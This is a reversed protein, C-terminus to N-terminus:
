LMLCVALRVVLVEKACCTTLQQKQECKHMYLKCSDQSQNQSIRALESQNKVRDPSEGDLVTHSLEAPQRPIDEPVLCAQALDTTPTAAPSNPPQARDQPAAGELAHMVHGGSINPAARPLDAPSHLPRPEHDQEMDLKPPSRFAAFGSM